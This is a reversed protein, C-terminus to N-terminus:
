KKGATKGAKRRVYEGSYRIGKGKYPEPKRLKRVNAAFEGVKQKDIGFIVITNKVDKDMSVELGEPAEMDVPHSFGLSLNLTKGTVQAKYGVGIIELRKTFGETVGQIMNAIMARTLGHLSREEREDGSRAVSLDLGEITVTIGKPLVFSLEGRPGKVSVGADTISVTVNVPITIIKKGIRSM